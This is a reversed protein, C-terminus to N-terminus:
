WSGFTGETDVTLTVGSFPTDWAIDADPGVLPQSIGTRACEPVTIILKRPTTGDDASDELTLVIDQTTPGIATDSGYRPKEIDATPKTLTTLTVAAHVVGEKLYKPGRPSRRSDTTITNDIVRIRRLNNNYDVSFSAVDYDPGGEIELSGEYGLWRPFNDPITWDTYIPIEGESPNPDAGLAMIAFAATLAGEPDLGLRMTNIKCGVYQWADGANEAYGAMFTYSSLLYSSVDRIAMNLVDKYQANIDVSLEHENVGWKVDQRYPSGIGYFENLNSTRTLTGGSALGIVKFNDTEIPIGESGVTEPTANYMVIQKDGGFPAM